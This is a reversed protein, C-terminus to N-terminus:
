DIWLETSIRNIFFTINIVYIGWFVASHFNRWTIGSNDCKNKPLKVWIISSSKFAKMICCKLIWSISAEPKMFGVINEVGDDYIFIKKRWCWFWYVKEDKRRLFSTSRFWYFINERQKEGEQSSHGDTPLTTEEAGLLFTIIYSSWRLGLDIFRLRLFGFFVRSLACFCINWSKEQKIQNLHVKESQKMDCNEGEAFFSYSFHFIIEMM